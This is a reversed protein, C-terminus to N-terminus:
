GTGDTRGAPRIVVQWAFGGQQMLVSDLTQAHFRQHNYALVLVSVKMGTAADGPTTRHHGPRPARRVGHSRHGAARRRHRARHRDTVDVNARGAERDGAPTPGRRPFAYPLAGDRPVGSLLLPRPPRDGGG